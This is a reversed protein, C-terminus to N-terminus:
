RKRGEPLVHCRCVCAPDPGNLHDCTRWMCSPHANECTLPRHLQQPLEGHLWGVGDIWHIVRRCNRCSFARPRQQGGVPREPTGAYSM